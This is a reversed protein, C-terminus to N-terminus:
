ELTMHEIYLDSFDPHAALNIATCLKQIREGETLENGSIQSPGGTADKRGYLYAGALSSNGVARVKPTLEKPFLGIREAKQVDLYYGFGGALYVEDIEAPTVGYEKILICIGAYVAAKAMQVARIQEQTIHLVGNPTRREIGTEFWPDAMLGTEDVIEEEMLDAIVAVMDTGPACNGPGGEFAPGAATATCMLRIRNGIVLEGNTGLDILLSIGEKRHMGCALVGALLDAGVFASLGPLLKVTVDEQGVALRVAQEALTVPAFPFRSLGEVSLGALLHEMVTNGALYIGAPKEALRPFSGTEEDPCSGSTGIEETEKQLRGIGEELVSVVSEQLAAAQGDLAAQMRSIVDSGFSRQPNMKQFTGLVRGDSLARAQMAITTTGLDIAICWEEWGASEPRSEANEGTVDDGCKEPVEATVQDRCKGAHDTGAGNECAGAFARKKDEALIGGELRGTDTVIQVGVPRVYEAEVCCDREVRHLCALRVGERLEQATLLRCETAAPQPASGQYKVRCRGCRGQGNCGAELVEGQGALVEFLTKSPAAKVEYLNTERKMM